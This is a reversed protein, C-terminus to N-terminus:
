KKRRKSLVVILTILVAGTVVSVVAFVLPDMGFIKRSEQAAQYAQAAQLQAQAAEQQNGSQLWGFFGGGLTTVGTIIALALGPGKQQSDFYVGQTLEKELGGTYNTQNFDYPVSLVSEMESQKLGLVASVIQNRTVTEPTAPLKGIASLNAMVADPNNDVVFGVVFQPSSQLQSLVQAKTM